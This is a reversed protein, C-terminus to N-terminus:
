RILFILINRLMSILWELYKMLLHGSILPAKEVVMLRHLQRLLALLKKRQKQLRYRM